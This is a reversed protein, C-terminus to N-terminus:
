NEEPCCFTSSQSILKTKVESCRTCVEVEYIEEICRPEADYEKHRIATVYETQNTHGFLTCLLNYTAVADSTDGIILKKIEEQEQESFCSDEAFIINYNQTGVITDNTNVSICFSITLCISLLLICLKKM